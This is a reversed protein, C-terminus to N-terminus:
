ALGFSLADLKLALLSASARAILNFSTLQVLESPSSIPRAFSRLASEIRCTNYALFMSFRAAASAARIALPPTAGTTVLFYDGYIVERGAVVSTTHVEKSLSTYWANYEVVEYTCLEGKKSGM